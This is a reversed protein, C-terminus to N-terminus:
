WADGAYDSLEYGDLPFTMVVETLARGPISSSPGRSTM